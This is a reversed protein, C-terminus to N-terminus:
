EPALLAVVGPGRYQQSRLWLLMLLGLVVMVYVAIVTAGRGWGTRQQLWNVPYGLVFALLFAVITPAIVQRFTVLLVIGLLALISAVIIKTTTNWRRTTM